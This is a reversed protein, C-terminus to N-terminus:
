NAPRLLDTPNPLEIRRTLDLAKAVNESNLLPAVSLQTRSIEVIGVRVPGDASLLEWEDALYRLGLEDLAKEAATLDVPASVPRWLLDYAVFDDGSVMIWGIRERDRGRVHEFVTDDLNSM